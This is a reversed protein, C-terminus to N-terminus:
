DYRHGIGAPPQWEFHYTVHWLTGRRKRAIRQCRLQGAELIGPAHLPVPQLQSESM